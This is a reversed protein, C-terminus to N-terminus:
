FQDQRDREDDEILRLLEDIAESEAVGRRVIRRGKYLTVRGPGSGVYGYDADAMEGPGNVICGMVGIKLGKLHGTRAKIAQLTGQLDYQTRGCGPCAIYETRTVRARSAQLTHFCVEDIFEPSMHPNEIWLGDALGDLFVPGADAAAKVMFAEPDADDYRARLVVPRADGEAMMNLVAARWEAPPNGSVAGLVAVRGAAAAQREAVDLESWLLPPQGGGLRGERVSVRPRYEFPHYLSPDAVPVIPAHLARGEFHAALINGVPIEKEPDESLSVRLTDGLGDALLAGIGVASKVRGQMADGAETVGLHLPYRMGEARMGAALLRYAHVMVRVNSSKISVVVQDFNEARCVKLFEMASFVMGEPTDGYRDMVSPSLSGHNVGIRLAVGRSRCLAILRQLEDSQQRFNGPNIRVKDVHLAAEFAVEPTFHIDAVIGADEGGGSRVLAAIDALNRAERMSPATLRVIRGGARYIRLVQAASAAADLTSTNTMSQVVLPEGGGIVVAGVRVPLTEARRYVTLSECFEM